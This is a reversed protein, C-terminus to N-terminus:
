IGAAREIAQRKCREWLVRDAADIRSLRGSDDARKEVSRLKARRRKLTRSVMRWHGECLWEMGPRLLDGKRDGRTRRCLPVVCTIRREDKIVTAVRCEDCQYTYLWPTRQFHGRNCLGCPHDTM